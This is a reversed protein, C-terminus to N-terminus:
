EAGDVVTMRELEDLVVRDAKPFAFDRLQEPQVWKVADCEIPRPRGRSHRCLFTHLTIRFHSYAHDVAIFPREIRVTIGLEEDLERALCQQLTEGPELKGGPFEWLGGLMAEPRRRTILIKRGRRIVGATVDVHPIRKKPPKFPYGLPDGERYADCLDRLPCLGCSPKRDTCVTAGLEMM